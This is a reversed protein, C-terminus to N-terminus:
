WPVRCRVPRAPPAQRTDHPPGGGKTCPRAMPAPLCHPAYPPHVAHPSGRAPGDKCWCTSQWAPMCASDSRAPKDAASALLSASGLASRVPRTSARMRRHQQLHHLKGLTAALDVVEGARVVAVLHGPLATPMHTHCKYRVLRHSLALGAAPTRQDLPPALWPRLLVGTPGRRKHMAAPGRGPGPQEQLQLQLQLQLQAPVRM